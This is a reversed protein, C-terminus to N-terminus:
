TEPTIATLGPLEASTSVAQPAIAVDFYEARADDVPHM